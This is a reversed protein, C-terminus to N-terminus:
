LGSLFVPSVTPKPLVGCPAAKRSNTSIRVWVCFDPMACGQWRDRRHLTASTCGRRPQYKPPTVRKRGISESRFAQFFHPRFRRDHCIVAHRLRAVIQLFAYWVRFGAHRLRAVQRSLALHCIHLRESTSIKRPLVRKRGSSEHRQCSLFPSISFLAFSKEGRRSIPIHVRKRGIPESRFAQFFFFM